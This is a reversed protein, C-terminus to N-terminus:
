GGDGNVRVLTVEGTDAASALAVADETRDLALTVVQRFSALGPDGSRAVDMVTVGRLIVSTIADRGSGTTAVVHVVDGPALSGDVARDSDLELSIELPPRSGDGSPELDSRAVLQGASLRGSTVRGLVLEADTDDFSHSAVEPPLDMERLGVDDPGIVTGPAMDRRAVVFSRLPEAGAAGFATFLGLASIAVLLGGLAARSGPWLRRARVIRTAGRGSPEPRPPHSGGSDSHPLPGVPDTTGGAM